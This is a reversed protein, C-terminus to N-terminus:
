KGNGMNLGVKASQGAKLFFDTINWMLGVKKAPVKFPWINFYCEHFLYTSFPLFLVFVEFVKSLYQFYSFHLSGPLKSWKRLLKDWEEKMTVPFLEGHVSGQGPIVQTGVQMWVFSSQFQLGLVTEISLKICCSNLDTGFSHGVINRASTCEPDEMFSNLITQCTVVVSKLSWFVPTYWLQVIRHYPCFMLDNWRSVSGFM